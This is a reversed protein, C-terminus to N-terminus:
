PVCGRGVTSVIIGAFSGYGDLQVRGAVSNESRGPLSVDAGVWACGHFNNTAPVLNM